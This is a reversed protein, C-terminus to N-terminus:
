TTPNLKDESQRQHGNALPHGDQVVEFDDTNECYVQTSGDSEVVNFWPVKGKGTAVIELKEDTLLTYDNAWPEVWVVHPSKRANWVGITVKNKRFIM